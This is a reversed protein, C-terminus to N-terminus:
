FKFPKNRLKEEEEMLIKNNESDGGTNSPNTLFHLLKTTAEADEIAGHADVLKIGARKCCAGLKHNVGKDPWYLKSLRQTCISSVYDGESDVYKHLSDKNFRFLEKLFSIDFAVNHGALLPKKGREKKFFLKIMNFVEDQPPASNLRNLSLRSIELAKPSIELDGYPRVLSEFRQIEKFKENLMIMGVQTIPNKSAKLGGTEFDFVVINM